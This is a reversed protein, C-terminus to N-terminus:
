IHEIRIRDLLEPDSYALSNPIWIWLVSKLAPEQAQVQFIQFIPLDTVSVAMWTFSGYGFFSKWQGTNPM